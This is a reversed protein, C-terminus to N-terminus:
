FRLLKWHINGGGVFVIVQFQLNCYGIAKISGKIIIHKKRLECKGHIKGKKKFLQLFIGIWYKQFYELPDMGLLRHFESLKGCNKSSM